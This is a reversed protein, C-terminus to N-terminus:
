RAGANRVTTIKYKCVKDGVLLELKEKQTRVPYDSGVKAAKCADNASYTKNFCPAYGTVRPVNGSPRAEDM